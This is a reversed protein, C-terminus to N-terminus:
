STAEPPVMRMPQRATSAAASPAASRVVVGIAFVMGAILSPLHFGIFRQGDLGRGVSRLALDDTDVHFCRPDLFM